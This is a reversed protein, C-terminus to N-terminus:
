SVQDLRRREQKKSLHDWGGRRQAPKWSTAGCWISKRSSRRPSRSRQPINQCTPCSRRFLHSHNPYSNVGAMTAIKKGWLKRSLVQPVLWGCYIGFWCLSMTMAMVPVFVALQKDSMRKSGAAEENDLVSTWAYLMCVSSVGAWWGWGYAVGLIALACGAASVIIMASLSFVRSKKPDRRKEFLLVVCTGLVVAHVAALLWQLCLLLGSLFGALGFWWILVIVFAVIGLLIANAMGVQDKSGGRRSIIASRVSFGICISIATWYIVSRAFLNSSDVSAFVVASISLEALLLAVLILGLRMENTRQETASVAFAISSFLIVAFAVWRRGPSFQWSLPELGYHSTQKWLVFLGVFAIIGVVIMWKPLDEAPPTSPGPRKAATSQDPDDRDVSTGEVSSREDQIQEYAERVQQFAWADGGSDPHYKKAKDKYASRVEDLTSNKDVGLIRYPDM